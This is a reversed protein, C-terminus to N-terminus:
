ADEEKTGSADKEPAPSVDSFLSDFRARAGKDVSTRGGADEMAASLMAGSLDEIAESEKFDIEFSTLKSALRVNQGSKGIALSHQDKGVAVAARKGEADLDITGVTAPSLANRIFERSNNSWQIIDVRERGLEASVAQIRQGKHGICAGIPDVNPSNSTVAVKSRSGPERAVAKVEVVGEAIEPVEQKLLYRLLEEHARSVTLSAGRASRQVEKLYVKTRQGPHYREGPIQERVPMLAEGSGLEVYVNGRNDVRAVQGTMIEGERGKFEEHLRNREAEKLRQTLIQKATQVTIRSLEETPVPFEIEEGLQIGPALPLAEALPIEREPNEVQEVVIKVELVEILGTQPDLHVEVEPGESEETDKSRFGKQRLYARALAEEFSEILEEPSVGRELAVYQLADVFEKSM